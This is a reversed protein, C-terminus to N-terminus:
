RCRNRHMSLLSLRISWHQKFGGVEGRETLESFVMNLELGHEHILPAITRKIKDASLYPYAVRGNMIFQKDDKWDKTLIDARLENVKKFLAKMDEKEYMSDSLM